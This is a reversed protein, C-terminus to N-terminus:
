GLCDFLVSARDLAADPLPINIGLFKGLLIFGVTDAQKAQSVIFISYSCEFIGNVYVLYVLTEKIKVLGPDNTVENVDISLKAIKGRDVVELM